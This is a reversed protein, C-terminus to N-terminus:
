DVAPTPAAAPGCATLVIALLALLSVFQLTLKSRM